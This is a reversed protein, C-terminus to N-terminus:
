AIAPEVGAQEDYADPQEEVPATSAMQMMMQEQHLMAHEEHVQQVDPDLAAYEQSNAFLRHEEFHVVHNDFWNVPFMPPAPPMQTPPVGAISTVNDALMQQQMQQQMRHAQVQEVTLKAIATNERRAAEKDVKLRDYVRGLTGMEMAELGVEPPIIGKDIWETIQAARAAKSKPLISEGDVRVDTGTAIDSGMLTRVDVSRDMGTVKVLRPEQWYQIVLSLFQRAMTRTFQQISDFTTSLFDDDTEKLLALASAATDAGPSTARSVQHQGSIDDLHVRWAELLRFVYQPVETIPVSRPDRMGLRIPIFTGPRSRIRHPDTSGEDYFFMPKSLLDRQKILQNYVRNLEDQLPTVSEITSKRYFRGTEIGTLMAFPFEGHDYPIGDTSLGVLENGAIVVLGGKPLLPTVHEKVYAELVLVHDSAASGASARIGLHAINVIESASVTAPNWNPKDVYRSYVARAKEVPMLHAHIVYPQKQLSLQAVDPVFLHWPSVPDSTVLGRVPEPELGSPDLGQAIFQQRTQQFQRKAAETAAPDIAAPDYYTKGFGTGTLARWLNAPSFTGTHYESTEYHWDLLSEAALAASIDPQENSAPLVTARPHVSTTKSLETRIIPEVVNVCLRSEYDPSPREVMQNTTTNWYTFQRGQYMDLNKYWKQEESARASRCDQYWRNVLSLLEADTQTRRAKDLDEKAFLEMTGAVEVLPRGSMGAADLRQLYADLDPVAM